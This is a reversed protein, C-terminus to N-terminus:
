ITKLAERVYAATFYGWQTRLDSYADDPNSHLNEAKAYAMFLVDIATEVKRAIEVIEEADLESKNNAVEKLPDYIEKIFPHRHNIKVIARGNLHTIDFLEKGPWSSDVLMIPREQIQQKIANALEQNNNVGVDELLDDIIEQQENLPVNM